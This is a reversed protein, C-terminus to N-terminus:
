NEQNHHKKQKLSYKSSYAVDYLVIYNQKVIKSLYLNATTKWTVAMYNFIYCLKQFSARVGNRNRFESYALAARPSSGGGHKVHFFNQRRHIGRIFVVLWGRVVRVGWRDRPPIHRRGHAPQRYQMRSSVVDAFAYDSVGSGCIEVIDAGLISVVVIPAFSNRPATQLDLSRPRRDKSACAAM